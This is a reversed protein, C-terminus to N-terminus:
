RQREVGTEHEGANYELLLSSHDGNDVSTDGLQWSVLCKEFYDFLLRASHVRADLYDITAIQEVDIRAPQLLRRKAVLVVLDHPWLSRPKALYGKGSLWYALWKGGFVSKGVKGKDDEDAM